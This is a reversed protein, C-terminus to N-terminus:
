LFFYAYLVVGVLLILFTIGHLMFGAIFAKLSVAYWKPTNRALDTLERNKASSPFWLLWSFICVRLLSAPFLNLAILEGRNFHPEKFYRELMKRPTILDLAWWIPLWLLGVVGMILTFDTISSINLQM